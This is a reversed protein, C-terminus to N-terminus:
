LDLLWSGNLGRLGLTEMSMWWTNTFRPKKWTWGINGDISMGLRMALGMKRMVNQGMLWIGLCSASAFKRIAEGTFGMDLYHEATETWDERHAVQGVTSGGMLKPPQLVTVKDAELWKQSDVMAVLRNRHSSRWHWDEDYYAGTNSGRWLLRGSDREEWPVVSLDQVYQETPVGLIDSHLNTKSLSFLPRLPGVQPQKDALVGHLPLLEPHNCIDM